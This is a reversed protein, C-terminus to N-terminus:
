KGKFELTKIDDFHHPIKLQKLNFYIFFCFFHVCSYMSILLPFLDPYKNTPKVTISIVSLFLSLIISTLMIIHFIFKKIVESNKMAQDLTIKVIKSQTTKKYEVNLIAHMLSNYFEMLGDQTNLFSQYTNEISVRFVVFYFGLLAFFAIILEDKIFLPLMSFVSIYLFWFCVFPDHPFHLIVPIAVLLISKEHVQFSFLFFALSSNILALVFKKKSPHLFLDCCSPFLFALTSFLCIRVMQYNDFRIKFKFLVNLTCWINAVKDEFVGRAIPFQRHLVQLIVDFDTLFPVWIAAFTFIVTLGIKCLNLIGSLYSQGPKPICSSLLYFFFPLAHYLEMQKYNLALCFLVTALLNNEKLLFTTALILFGLSISNYQFHGHDILIIGPYFLALLTSLSVNLQKTSTSSKSKVRKIAESESVNSNVQFYWILAPVYFLVDGIIVTIRMFLKHIESEYGRSDHLKTFNENILNAFQGCVYMHYATLPPYDLGWYELNNDTTNFYWQKLPINTTVEMWHRQAEYDGYMPPTAEGSHPHLSTSIRLLIAILTAFIVLWTECNIKLVM